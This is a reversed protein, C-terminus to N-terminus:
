TSLVVHPFLDVFRERLESRGRASCAEGIMTMAEKYCHQVGQDDLGELQPLVYMALAEGLADHAVLGPDGARRRAYRIVDLVVAVGIPRAAFLGVTSFLRVLADIAAAPLPTDAGAQSAHRRIVGAYADDDPIGIHIIAFRRQVAYSLRFLSTKDWTNMTAIVRFTKPMPHTADPALGIRVLRGNDLEFSTDSARGALVTMLEGFARDVDARNIEDVILWQRQTVARLLAGERFKLEGSKALAYGGITDFTTWDASATAVFAGATYGERRAAQAIFHALETKATGPPGVLLLHKGASLAAVAREITNAPLVLEQAFPAVHEARLDVREAGWASPEDIATLTPADLGPPVESAALSADDDAAADDSREVDVLESARTRIAAAEVAYRALTARGLATLHDGDDQRDTLGLSLLWNRRFNVQNRSQWDVDLLKRMLQQTHPGDLPAREALVLPELMGIFAAHLRDFVESADKTELYEAGAPLLTILDDHITAVGLAELMMMYSKRAVEGSVDYVDRFVKYLEGIVLPRLAIRELLADLTAKYERVGGPLTWLGARKKSAQDTM